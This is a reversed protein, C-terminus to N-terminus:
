FYIKGRKLDQLLSFVVLPMTWCLLYKCARTLIQATPISSKATARFAWWCKSQQVHRPYRGAANKINLKEYFLRFMLEPPSFAPTCTLTNWLVGMGKRSAVLQKRRTKLEESLHEVMTDIYNDLAISRLQSTVPTRCIPCEKKVKM